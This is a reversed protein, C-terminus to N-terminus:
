QKINLNNSLNIFAHFLNKSVLVKTIAIPTYAKLREQQICLVLCLGAFAFTTKM